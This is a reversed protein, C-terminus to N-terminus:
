KDPVNDVDQTFPKEESPPISEYRGGAPLRMVFLIALVLFLALLALKAATQLYRRVLAAEASHRGGAIVRSSEPAPPTSPSRGAIRSIQQLFWFERRPQQGVSPGEASLDEEAAQSASIGPPPPAAHAQCMEDRLAADYDAKAVPDLLCARAAMLEQLLRKAEAAHEGALFRRVYTMQRDAANQIVEPDYEFLELGLLRYHHPPRRPDRIGLWVVYPDFTKGKEASNM